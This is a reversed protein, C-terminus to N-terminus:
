SDKYFPLSVAGPIVDGLGPSFHTPNKRGKIIKPSFICSVSGEIKEDSFVLVKFLYYIDSGFCCM